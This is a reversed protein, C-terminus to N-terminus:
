EVSGGAVAAILTGNEIDSGPAVVIREGSSLGSQIEVENNDANGPRVLRFQAHGETVVFVGTIGAREVLASAPIRVARLEGVPVHVRVYLGSTLASNAPIGLRILHTHTQADAAAVVSKLVGSYVASGVSFPIAEGVKLATYIDDPVYSQVELAHEDEVVLLPKGPTALDGPDVLKEVVVGSFPAQVDAYGVQNTAMRLAAQASALQAKATTYQREAADLQMRSVAGEPFLTSYRKYNIDAEDYVAQAQNLGAEAQQLNGRVDSSDITLLHQGARVRDGAQVDVNRVYGTLRSSIEARKLSVVTGPITAYAPGPQAKVVLTVAHVGASQEIPGGAGENHCAALTTMALVIAAIRPAPHTRLPVAFKLKSNSM